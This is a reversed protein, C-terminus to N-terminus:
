SYLYALCCINEYRTPGKSKRSLQRARKMVPKSTTADAEATVIEPAIEPAIEAVDVAYIDTPIDKRRLQTFEPINPTVKPDSNACDIFLHLTLQQIFVSISCYLGSNAKPDWKVM